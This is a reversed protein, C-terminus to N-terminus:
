YLIDVDPLRGREMCQPAFVIGLNGRAFEKIGDLLAPEAWLYRGPAEHRSPNEMSKWYHKGFVKLAQTVIEATGASRDFLDVM